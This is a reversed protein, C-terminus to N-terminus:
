EAPDTNTRRTQPADTIAAVSARLRRPDGPATVVSQAGADLLRERWAEVRAFYRQPDVQDARQESVAALIIHAGSLDPLEERGDDCESGAVDEDLDSFMVIVLPDYATDGVQRHVEWFAGTIDTFDERRVRRKLRDVEAILDLKARAAFDERSPIDVDLLVNRAGFSCAGVKSFAFRDGPRLGKVLEASGQLATSKRDAYSKSADFLVFVAGPGRPEARECASGLALVVLCIAARWVTM